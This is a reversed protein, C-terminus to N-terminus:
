ENVYVLCVFDDSAIDTTGNDNFFVKVPMGDYTEKGQIISAHYEWVKGNEDFIEGCTYYKGKVVDVTQQYAPKCGTLMTVSILTILFKKM